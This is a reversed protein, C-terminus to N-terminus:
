GGISVTLASLGLLGVDSLLCDFLGQCECVAIDLVSLRAVYARVAVIRVIIVTEGDHKKATTQPQRSCCAGPFHPRLTRTGGRSRVGMGHLGVRRMAKRRQKHIRIPM